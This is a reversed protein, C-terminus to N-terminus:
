RRTLTRLTHTVEISYVRVRVRERLPSPILPHLALADIRTLWSSVHLVSTQGLSHLSYIKNLKRDSVGCVVSGPKCERM